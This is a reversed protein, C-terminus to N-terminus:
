LVQFGQSEGQKQAVRALILFHSRIQPNVHFVLPPKVKSSATTEAPQVASLSIGEDDSSSRSLNLNPNVDEVEPTSQHEATQMSHQLSSSLPTPSAPRVDESTELAPPGSNAVDLCGNVFNWMRQDVAPPAGKFSITLMTPDADCEPLVIDALPMQSEIIDGDASIVVLSESTLMLTVAKFRAPSSELTAEVVLLCQLTSAFPVKSSFKILAGRQNRGRDRRSQHRPTPLNSWGAGQLLGQGTM